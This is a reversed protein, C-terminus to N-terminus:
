FARCGGNASQWLTLLRLRGLPLTFPVEPVAVAQPASWVGM